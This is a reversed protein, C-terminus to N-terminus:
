GDQWHAAHYHPCVVDPPEHPYEILVWGLATLGPVHSDHIVTMHSGPSQGPPSGIESACEGCASAVVIGPGSPARRTM